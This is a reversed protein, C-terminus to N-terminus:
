EREARAELARLAEAGLRATGLLHTRKVDHKLLLLFLLDRPLNHWLYWSSCAIFRFLASRLDFNDRNSTRAVWQLLNLLQLDNCQILLVIRLGPLVRNAASLRAGVM